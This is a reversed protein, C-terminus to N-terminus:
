SLREMCSLPAFGWGSRLHLWGGTLDDVEEEAGAELWGALPADPRRDQFIPTGGRARYRVIPAPYLTGVWARFAPEGWNRPDDRKNKLRHRTINRHTQIFAPTIDYRAILDLVLATL